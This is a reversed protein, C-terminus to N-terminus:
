RSAGKHESDASRSEKNPAEGFKRYLIPLILLTLLTSTTLGGVGVIALPRQIEAGPGSAFLLPILGFAAISATMLVPRLRRMAGVNVTMDMSMGSARLQNFYSVMVVGNLVAIGLLSIFGVSASVSLYEGSIWIAYVGGILALPVNALVLLAQRISGFTSFLLLFILGLAVPIVLSLRAAARQQNEFQGGWQISYGVPLTVKQAVAKKAEEVYGVLDRGEVNSRVVSLRQGSERAVSVVGEVLEIKAVLSLPVRRGDPLAIQFTSINAPEGAGRLLLPTRRISEQVIGLKRGEIQSRLTDALSDSDLGLRGAALRDVKVVLYQMGENRLTFVDSAGKITRMVGAIEEAKANLELLEPGYIKVAVDGRVGTLMETVRMQIPQTFGFAIGPITAMVKRIEEILESKTKFRWDRQPKLTMFTDTENLGMPDLGIEDAGVRATIRTVEPVHDLIAKQIEGDIRVSQELNISPLKEVQVILDGEDMTPMFTKGINSYVLLTSLLLGGVFVMIKSSHALSWKLAPEYIALAKRALWPEDHSVKSMLFSALVPIILLSFMLSGSMAFINTFAVPKFLKGELGELSLLPIFVIGIIVSGSIVPAMVERMARFIVNLRPGKPSKHHEALHTTLNEVVVVAPDVLKGIAIALGGLSMLNATIGFLYMLLFAFLAVMPLIMAATLAARWEGLFLVLLILVLVTAEILAHIITATAKNVLSSRNYFVNISVGEPLSSKIEDLKKEVGEVVQRANAGRLSLVLGEVVEGKGNQSVAGYRTLAGIRVDAVDGVTIPIGNREAVVITRVDDLDVIRGEARVFMSEEGQTLRGAGDNRNNSQLAKTLEEMSVARAVMRMNDPIVEFSRVMGGLANVDAVGPVTRLAPRITWDLLSRREALSLAVGDVTFMFMEGLPTTMPAIGGEVNSPLNAWATNLRETVQQRAWYIDTGEEFDITIDTLAYKTTSRLMTQKPIGLMEIEIPATVRMEVEEPTMGPIKVIVKVQTPSVDPFADIPLKQAASWGFSALLVGALLTFVRHTLAFQILSSM